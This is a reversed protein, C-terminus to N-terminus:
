SSKKIEEYKAFMNKTPAEVKQEVDKLFDRQVRLAKIGRIGGLMRLDPDEEEFDVEFNKILLDGGRIQEQPAEEKENNKTKDDFNLKKKRKIEVIDETGEETILQVLPDKAINIHTEEPKLNNKTLM